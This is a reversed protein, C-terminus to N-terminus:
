NRGRALFSGGYIALALLMLARLGFVLSAYELLGGMVSGLLNSGFALEVSGAQKLSSSFIIGAFFLPLSVVLSGLVIRLWLNQGLLAGLPLSYGLLLAAILLGYYIRRDLLKFRQVYFNAILVMILIASIVVANVIWTSGFLLALDTVSKIELLLFGAGLLFFRWDIRLGGPAIARIAVISLVGLLALVQWYAQPLSRERLYLFPWDDIAPEVRADVSADVIEFRVNGPLRILEAPDFGPGILYLVGHSTNLMTPEEGFAAAVINFLRQGIWDQGSWFFLAMAGDDALHQKAERIGEVTYVFNDLRLSSMSSFLTHSDLLGYVILDYKEDTKKLFSRADDIILNVKSSDYPREPHIDRGIRSIVPDIEVADIREAGLRLATAIDNGAGAGVVLVSRPRVIQYPLAYSESDDVALPFLAGHTRAFGPSLDVAFQHFDYNVDLTYGWRVTAGAAGAAEVPKVDIRYYPSWYSDGRLAFALVIFALSVSSNILLARKSRRLLWLCVSLGIAFWAPPPWNLFSLASFAWVGVLSGFVNLTYARIPAFPQMAQGTAQGLPIFVLATSLFFFPILIYFSLISLLPSGQLIGWIYVDSDAPNALSVFVDNAAGILVVASLACLAIPFAPMLRIQRRALMFGLGLGMFAAILPLNKYYAFLRIETSLWRIILSEFFLGAFSILCLDLIAIRGPAGVPQPQDIQLTRTVAHLVRGGAPHLALGLVILALGGGIVGARVLQVSASFGDSLHTAQEPPLFTKVFEPSFFLSAISVGTGLILLGRAAIGRAQVIM